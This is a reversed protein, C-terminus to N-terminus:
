KTWDLYQKYTYYRTNTDTRYAKLIGQRDYRQLTKPHVGIMKAFQGLKYKKNVNM